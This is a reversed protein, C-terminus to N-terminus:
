GTTREEGRFARSPWTTGARFSSLTAIATLPTHPRKDRKGPYFGINKKYANM